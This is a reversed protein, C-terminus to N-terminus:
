FTPDYYRDRKGIFLSTSKISETKKHFRGDKRLTWQEWRDPKDQNGNAFTYEASGDHESGKVVTAVDQSVWITKKNPSVQHITGAYRDTWYLYTVGMGVEPTQPASQHMMANVLSNHNKTITLTQVGM